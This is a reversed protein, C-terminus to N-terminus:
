TSVSELDLVPQTEEFDHCDANEDDEANDDITAAVPVVFIDAAGIEM